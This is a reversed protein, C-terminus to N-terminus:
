RHDMAIDVMPDPRPPRPDLTHPSKRATAYLRSFRSDGFLEKAHPQQVVRNATEVRKERVDVNVDDLSCLLDVWGPTDAVLTLGWSQDAVSSFLSWVSLRISDVPDRAHKMLKTMASPAEQNPSLHMFMDLGRNASSTSSALILRSLTEYYCPLLSRPSNSCSRLFNDLSKSGEIVKWGSSGFTTSFTGLCLAAGERLSDSLEISPNLLLGSANLLPLFIEAKGEDDPDAFNEPAMMHAIVRLIGEAVLAREVDEEAAGDAVLNGMHEIVGTDKLVELGGPVRAFPSISEFWALQSLLDGPNLGAKLKEDLLARGQESASSAWGEILLEIGRVRGVEKSAGTGDLIGKFKEVVRQNDFIVRDLGLNLITTKAGQSVSVDDDDLAAVLGLMLGQDSSGEGLDRAVLMICEVCLERVCAAPHGLGDVLQSAGVLDTMRLVAESSGSQTGVLERIVSRIADVVQDTDSRTLLGSSLSSVLDRVGVREVLWSAQRGPTERFERVSELVEEISGQHGGASDEM